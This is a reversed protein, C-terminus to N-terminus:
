VRLSGRPVGGSMAHLGICSSMQGITHCLRQVTGKKGLLYETARGEKIAAERELRRREKEARLAAALTQSVPVPPGARRWRGVRYAGPPTNVVEVLESPDYESKNVIDVSEDDSVESDSDDILVNGHVKRM